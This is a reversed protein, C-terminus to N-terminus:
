TESGNMLSPRRDMLRNFDRLGRVDAKHVEEGVLMHSKNIIITNNEMKKKIVAKEAKM